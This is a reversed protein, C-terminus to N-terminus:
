EEDGKLVNIDAVEYDVDSESFDTYAAEKLAAEVAAEMSEAEVELDRVVSRTNKIISVTFKSMTGPMTSAHAFLAAWDPKEQPKRDM